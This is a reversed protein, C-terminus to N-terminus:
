STTLTTMTWFLWMQPLDTWEPDSMEVLADIIEQKDRGGKWDSKGTRVLKMTPYGTVGYKPSNDRRPRTSRPLTFPNIADKLEKAIEAYTPAFQKCHGCWPAYFELMTINKEPNIFDEFTDTKVVVDDDELWAAALAVLCFIFRM